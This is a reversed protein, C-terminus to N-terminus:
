RRLVNVAIHYLTGPANGTRAALKTVRHFAEFQASDANALCGLKRITDSIHCFLYHAKLTKSDGTNKEDGKKSTHNVDMLPSSKFLLFVKHGLAGLEELDVDTFSQKTAMSYFLNYQSIFYVIEACEPSQVLGDVFYNLISHSFIGLM